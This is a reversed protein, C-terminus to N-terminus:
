DLSDYRGNNGAAGLPRRARDLEIGQASLRRLLLASTLIKQVGVLDLGLQVVRSGATWNIMVPTKGAFLTALFAIDAAVSAPLMIGVYQGPLAAIKPRLALIATILDRYTRSGQQMDAAIVQAPNRRAQALFVHQISQGEPIQM